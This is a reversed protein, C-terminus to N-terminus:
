SVSVGEETPLGILLGIAGIIIVAAVGIWLPRPLRISLHRPEPAVPETAPM